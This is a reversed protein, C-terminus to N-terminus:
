AVKDSTTELAESLELATKIFATHVFIQPYNGLYDGTSPDIEESFIGLNNMKGIFKEFLSVAKALQNTNVYASVLWLTCINFAGESEGLKENPWEYRYVFGESSLLNKEVAKISSLVKPHSGPLLEYWPLTLVHADLKEGGLTKVFSNVKGNWGLKLITSRISEATKEWKAIDGKLKFRTAIEVASMLGKFCLVKSGTYAQRAGREEWIGHDNLHWHDVIFDAIPRVLKWTSVDIEEGSRSYRALFFLIEGFVDLQFQKYADNGIRVPRSSRYGDLALEKEGPPTSGDMDYLVHLSEPGDQCINMMFEMFWKVEKAMHGSTLLADVVFASDRLWTYRYDWNKDGGIKEPLSTTASAILSGHKRSWLMGTALIARRVIDSYPGSYTCRSIWNNWFSETQDLAEHYLENPREFPASPYGIIFIANNGADLNFESICSSDHLHLEVTSTLTLSNTGAAAKCYNTYLELKPIYKGFDFVPKMEAAFKMTGSIVKIERFIVASQPNDTIRMFDTLIAKGHKGTFATTLINTNHKYMNTSHFPENPHLSFYGGKQNDLLSGFVSGSNFTPLCLWDISGKQSVLACTAQNGIIGYNKIPEYSTAM